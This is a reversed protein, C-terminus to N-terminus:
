ATKLYFNWLEVATLVFRDGLDKIHLSYFAKVPNYRKVGSITTGM